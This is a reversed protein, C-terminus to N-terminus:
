HSYTFQHPKKGKKLLSLENPAIAPWPAVFISGQTGTLTYWKQVNPTIALARIHELETVHGLKARIRAVNWLTASSTTVMKLRHLETKHYSLSIFISYLIYLTADLLRHLENAAM